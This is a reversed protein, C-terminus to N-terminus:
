NNEKKEINNYQKWCSKFKYSQHRPQVLCQLVAAGKLKVTTLLTCLNHNLLLALMSWSMECKQGLPLIQTNIYGINKFFQLFSKFM